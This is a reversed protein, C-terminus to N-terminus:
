GTTEVHFCTSQPVPSVEAQREHQQGREISHIVDVFLRPMPGIFRATAVRNV